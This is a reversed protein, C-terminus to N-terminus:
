AEDDQFSRRSGFRHRTGDTPPPRKPHRRARRIEDMLARREEVTEARLGAAFTLARLRARDSFEAYSDGINRGLLNMRRILVAAAGFLTDLDRYIPRSLAAANPELDRHAVETNRLQHLRALADRIRPKKLARGLRILAEFEMNARVEANAADGQATAEFIARDEDSLPTVLALRAPFDLQVATRQQVVYARVEPLCLDRCINKLSLPRKGRVDKDFMRTLAIVLAEFIASRVQLYGGTAYGRGLREVLHEDYALVCWIHFRQLALYFENTAVELHRNAVNLAEPRGDTPVHTPVITAVEDSM